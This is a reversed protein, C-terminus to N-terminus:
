QRIIENKRKLIRLLRKVSQLVLINKSPILPKELSFRQYNNPVCDEIIGATGFSIDVLGNKKIIEFYQKSLNNDSHPFAFAGYDLNFKNRVFSVSEITQHVQEELSIDAYLPHDISHAGISFGDNILKNVQETTLYPKNKLLYDNFDIDIFEAINDILDRQNYRVSLIALPHSNSEINNKLLLDEIQKLTVASANKQLLSEVLLSAKHQYCLNRNDTFGSNIFFTAPIGKQLLIPAVIDYIERFGDDFTLLLSRQPLTGGNKAFAMLADFNIPNFRKLLFDLDTKFQKITKHLYLHKTHQVEEDSIIHYYPITVKVNLLEYCFLVPM